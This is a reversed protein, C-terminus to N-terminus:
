VMQRRSVSAIKEVKRKYLKWILAIIAVLIWGGTAMATLIPQLPRNSIITPKAALSPPVFWAFTSVADEVGKRRVVVEISWNGPLSLYSGDLQYQTEDITQADASLTGINEDLYTFRVIVRMIEASGSLTTEATEILFTNKGPINPKASFSITIDDASQTIPNIIEKMPYPAYEPGIPHPLATLIAVFGLIFIGVGIQAFFLQTVHNFSVPTWGDPRRLLRAIPAAIGPHLMAANFLGFLGMLLTLTVKSLLTQGYFTTILADFTAIYDGASYLGTLILAVISFTAISSFPRWGALIIPKYQEPQQRFLPFLGLLLVILGGIWMGLAIIHIMDALILLITHEAIAAAHSILAQMLIVGLVTTTMPVAMWLKEIQSTTRQLTIWLALMAIYFAQRGLWLYGWRFQTLFQWATKSLSANEPLNSQLQLLQQLLFGFGILFALTTFRIAWRVINTQAQEIAPAVAPNDIPSGLVLYLITIAGIIISLSLYNIWRLTSELWPVATETKARPVATLDVNGGVGFVIFGESDHGDIASLVHWGVTYAGNELAPLTLIVLKRDIDDRRITELPITQGNADLIQFTSYDMDIDETFWMRVARPAESLIANDPPDSRILDTHASAHNFFAAVSLTVLLISLLLQRQFKSTM